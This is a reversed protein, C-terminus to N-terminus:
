TPFVKTTQGRNGIKSHVSSSLLLLERYFMRPQRFVAFVTFTKVRSRKIMYPICVYILENNQHKFLMKKENYTCVYKFIYKELM